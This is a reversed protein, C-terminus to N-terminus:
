MVFHDQHGALWNLFVIGTKYHYTPAAFLHRALPM